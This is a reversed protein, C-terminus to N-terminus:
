VGMMELGAVVRAQFATFGITQALTIVQSDDLGAAKLKAIDEASSADPRAAVLAAWELITGVRDTGNQPNLAANRNNEDCILSLYHAALQLQNAAQSVRYAVAAREDRTLGTGSTDITPHHIAEYGEQLHKLVEPRTRRVQWVPDNPTLDLVNDILDSM